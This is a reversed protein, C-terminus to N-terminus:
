RVELSPSASPGQRKRLVFVLGGVLSALVGIVFWLLGFAVAKEPAVGITRLLFLYGGERLGIGNFSIPLASFTGVLPYLIFCFSWPLDIGLAHGLVRQLGGQILHVAASLLFAGLLRSRSKAYVQVAHGLCDRFTDGELKFFRGLLPAALLALLIGLAVAYTV